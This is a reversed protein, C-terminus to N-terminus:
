ILNVAIKAITVVAALLFLGADDGYLSAFAPLHSSVLSMAPVHNEFPQWPIVEGGTSHKAVRGIRPDEIGFRKEQQMHGGDEARLASEQRLDTTLSERQQSGVSSTTPCCGSVTSPKAFPTYEDSHSPEVQNM